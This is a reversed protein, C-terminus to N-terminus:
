FIPVFIKCVACCECWYVVCPSVRCACSPGQIDSVGFLWQQRSGGIRDAAGRGSSGSAGGSVAIVAAQEVEVAVTVLNKM